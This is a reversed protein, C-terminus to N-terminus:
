ASESLTSVDTKQVAYLPKNSCTAMLNAINMAKQADWNEISLTGLNNGVTKVAGSALTGDNFKVYVSTKNLTTVVAM